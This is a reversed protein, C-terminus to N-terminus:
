EKVPAAVPAPPPPPCGRSDVKTGPPTNPCADLGDVVGDGDSDLECGNVDVKRGPPTGPCKDRADPVGDGDADPEVKPGVAGLKVILGLTGMPSLDGGSGDIYVGRVDARVSFRPNIDKFMGIGLDYTNEDDSGFVDKEFRSRGGGGILYPQFPLK